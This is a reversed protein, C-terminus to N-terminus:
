VRPQGDGRGDFEWSIQNAAYIKTVLEEAWSWVLGPNKVFMRGAMVADLPEDDAEKGGQLLEEAQKGQTINGVTSVLMKIRNAFPAQYGPGGKIKQGPHNGGSSVDLLGVGRESLLM